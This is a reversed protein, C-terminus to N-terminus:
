FAPQRSELRNGLRRALPLTLRDQRADVELLSLVDGRREVVLDYPAVGPGSVRERLALLDPQQEATPKVPRACRPAAAELEAIARAAYGPEYAVVVSRLRGSHGPARFDVRHAAIRFQESGYTAGCLRLTPRALSYGSTVRRFGPPLDRGVMVSTRVVNDAEAASMPTASTSQPRSPTPQDPPAPAPGDGWGATVVALAVLVGAGVWPLVRRLV